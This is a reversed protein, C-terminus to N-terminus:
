SSTYVGNEFYGIVQCMYKTKAVIVTDEEVDGTSLLPRYTNCAASLIRVYIGIHLISSNPLTITLYRWSKIRGNASEVM